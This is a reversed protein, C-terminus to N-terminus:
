HRSERPRIKVGTETDLIEEQSSEPRWFCPNFVSPMFFWTSTLSLSGLCFSGEIEHSCWLLPLNCFSDDDETTVLQPRDWACPFNKDKLCQSQNWWQSIPWSPVGLGGLNPRCCRRPRPASPVRSFRMVSPAPKINDLTIFGFTLM